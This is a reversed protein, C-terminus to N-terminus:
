VVPYTLEQWCDLCYDGNVQFIEALRDKCRDCRTNHTTPTSASPSSYKNDDNRKIAVNNKM